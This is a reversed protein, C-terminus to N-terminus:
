KKKKKEKMRKGKSEKEERYAFLARSKLFGFAHIQIQFWMILEVFYM